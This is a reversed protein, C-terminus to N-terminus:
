RAASWKRVPKVKILARLGGLERKTLPRWAGPKLDDVTLEGYRIRTLKAVQHGIAEAMRHIQRNRGEKITIELWTHKSDKELIRLGAPLTVTGDDLTVGESLAMLSSPSVVGRLKAEYTKAVGGRPHMLGNALDGDNTLLLVGDTLYDLRGVPFVRPRDVDEPKFLLNMITPRGEPDDVTTVYGRPKHLLLYIPEEVQLRKGEVTVKDRGTHIKTGPLMVVAGNVEVKGDAILTECKRRSAVGCKAM